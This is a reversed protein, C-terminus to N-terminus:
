TSAARPIPTARRRGSGTSAGIGLPAFLHEAAYDDAQRGTAKKLVEVLLETAGSSYVWTKGPDAAMPQDLVFQVWDKSAEM